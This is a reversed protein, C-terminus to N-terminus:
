ENIVSKNIKNNFLKKDIKEYILKINMMTDKMMLIIMREM